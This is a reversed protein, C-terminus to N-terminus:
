RRKKEINNNNNNKKESIKSENNKESNNEKYSFSYKEDEENNNNNENNKEEKEIVQIKLEQKNYTMNYVILNNELTTILLIDKNNRIFHKLGTIETKCIKEIIKKNKTVLNYIVINSYEYIFNYYVILNENKRSTFLCFSDSLSGRIFSIKEPFDNEQIKLEIPCKNFPIDEYSDFTKIVDSDEDDSEDSEDINIEFGNLNHFNNYINDLNDNINNYTEKNSIFYSFKKLNECIENNKYGKDYLSFLEKNLIIQNEINTKYIKYDENIKEILKKLLNIVKEKKDM